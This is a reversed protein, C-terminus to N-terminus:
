CVEVATIRDSAEYQLLRDVLDRASGPVDPLLEEWSKGAYEVFGIKGWDPLKASGQTRSRSNHTFLLSAFCNFFFINSLM